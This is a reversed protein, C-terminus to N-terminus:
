NIRKKKNRAYDQFIYGGLRDLSSYYAKGKNVRTLEEVFQKLYSDRAIMFTTITIDRRRCSRAAALTQSVIKPDLGFSNKYLYGGDDICSPKGDTIMFIQKNRNKQRMLLKESLELAARTNTHYPGVNVWPLEDPPIMAADDGFVVVDLSDKPYQTRILELLALAVKKAPTIRDEGYLIMSHSIDLCLVTSCASLHEKEFVEIDNEQVRFGSGASSRLANGITASFHIDQVQDGFEYPRTEPLNDFGTGAHPTRHEGFADHRLDQFIEQLADKRIGRAGRDTVEIRDQEDRRIFGKDELFKKFEEKSLGAADLDYHDWIQEMYEWAQEADGGTQLLLQNWIRQLGQYNQRALDQPDFKTYRYFM